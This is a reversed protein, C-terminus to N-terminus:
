RHRGGQRALEEYLARYVGGERAMLEGHSGKEVIAGQDLVVIMDVGVITSLRHAVVFSTCRKLARGVARQIAAEAESDIASTAEDMILIAPDKLLARAISVRQKQGVSLQVGYTGLVTDLGDPLRDAFQMVEAAAAAARIQERSAHPDGYSINDALTGEFIVPQQQVVGFLSRLSGLSVDRIDQGDILITGSDIDWLRMLLSVLTTKGCGTHGVLAVSSGAPVHLDMGQFLPKDPTYGFHIDRFEVDGKRHAIDPADPKSTVDPQRSIVEFIRDLSVRIQAFQGAFSTLRLAPNLAMWVYTNLALLEGLTMKEHLVYYGALGYIITAGYGAIVNCTASLGVTNLGSAFGHRLGIQTRELYTERERTERTFIRVHRVGNLTEQLRGVLLDNVERMSHTSKQIRASFFRYATVYLVVVVLLLSALFADITYAVGLSFGFVIVDGLLQITQANLLQQVVGVDGMIRNVIEGAPTEGHFDLGLRLSLRYMRNRLDAVLSQGTNVMNRANFFQLFQSLIPVLAYLTIVYPLRQWAEVQVVHDILYRFILPPSVALLNFVGVGLLALLLRRRFKRVYPLMRAFQIRLGATAAKQNADTGSNM